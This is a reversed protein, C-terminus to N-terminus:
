VPYAVGAVARETQVTYPSGGFLDKLVQYFGGGSVLALEAESLEGDGVDPPLVITLTDSPSAVVRMELGAPPAINLEAQFAAEPAAILKARFEADDRARLVLRTEILKLLEAPSPEM